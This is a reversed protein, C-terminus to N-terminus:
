RGDLGVAIPRWARRISAELLRSKRDGAGADVAVLPHLADLSRNKKDRITELIVV